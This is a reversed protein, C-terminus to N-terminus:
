TQPLSLLNPMVFTSSKGRGMGGQILLSEYTAKESLRLNHGDVLFGDQHSGLLKQRGWWGMFQNKTKGLGFLWGVSAFLGSFFMGIGSILGGVISGTGKWLNRWLLGLSGLGFLAVLLVLIPSGAILAPLLALIALIVLGTFFIKNIQKM